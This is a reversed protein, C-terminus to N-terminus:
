NILVPSIDFCYITETFTSKPNKTIIKFLGDVKQITIINTLTKASFGYKCPLLIQCSGLATLAKDLNLLEPSTEKRGLDVYFQKESFLEAFRTLKTFQKKSYYGSRDLPLIYCVCESTHLEIYRFDIDSNTRVVHKVYTGVPMEKTPYANLFTSTVNEGSTYESFFKTISVTPRNLYPLVVSDGPNYPLHQPIDSLFVKTEPEQNTNM